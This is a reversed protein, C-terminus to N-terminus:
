REAGGVLKLQSEDEPVDLKLSGCSELWKLLADRPVIIRRGLKISPILKQRVMEYATTRNIRLLKATEDVTLVHPLNEM